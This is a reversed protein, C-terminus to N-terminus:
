YRINKLERRAVEVHRRISAIEGVPKLSMIALPLPKVNHVKLYHLTWIDVLLTFHPSILFGFKKWNKFKM